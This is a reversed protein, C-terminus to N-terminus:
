VARVESFLGIVAVGAVILAMGAVAPWDPWQGYLCAGVLCILLLGVGSWVAYAIGLPLVRLSLSLCYFSAVYGSVALVTPMPRTFGDALRLASTAAVECVIALWLLLWPSFATM